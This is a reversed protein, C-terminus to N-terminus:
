TESSTRSGSSPLCIIEFEIPGMRVHEQPVPDRDTLDRLQDLLPQLVEGYFKSGYGILLTHGVAFVIEWVVSVAWQAYYARVGFDPNPGIVATRQAYAISRDMSKRSTHGGESLAAYLRANMGGEPPLPELGESGRRRSRAEDVRKVARAVTSPKPTKGDLWQRTLQEESPECFVILLRNTEHISRATAFTEVGYGGRVLHVLARGLSLARM